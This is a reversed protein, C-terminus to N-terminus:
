VADGSALRSLRAPDLVEVGSRTTAILGMDRLDALTRAVTERVSGVADALDQQSVRAVLRAGHQRDAALDLLHRALRQRVTGFATGAFADLVGRLLSAVEEAIAWALAPDARAAAQMRPGSVVLLRCDTVAQGGVAIPGGVAMPLGLLEGARAYRVTVQRGDPSTLFVRVLGDTVLATRAPDEDRYLVSAAPVDLLVADALLRTLADPSM